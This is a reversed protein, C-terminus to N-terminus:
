SISLLETVTKHFLGAERKKKKKKKFWAFTVATTKSAAILQRRGTCPVPQTVPKM